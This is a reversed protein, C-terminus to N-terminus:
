HMALSSNLMKKPNKPMKLAIVMIDRKEVGVKEWAAYYASQCGTLVTFAFLAPIIKIM